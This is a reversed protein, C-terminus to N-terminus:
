FQFYRVLSWWFCSSPFSGGSVFGLYVLSQNLLIPSKRGCIGFPLVQLKILFNMESIGGNLM